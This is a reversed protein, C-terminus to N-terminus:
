RMDYKAKYFQLFDFGLIGDGTDLTDKEIVHFSAKIKCGNIKITTDIMGMTEIGKEKGGVGYLNVKFDRLKQDTEISDKNIISVSAGTDILMKLPRNTLETYLYIFPSKREIFISETLTKYTETHFIQMERLITLKNEDNNKINMNISMLQSPTHQGGYGM